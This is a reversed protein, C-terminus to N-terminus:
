VWYAVRKRYRSYFLVAVVALVATLILCFAWSFLSPPNGLLPDRVIEIFHYFPNADVVASRNPLLDPNWLIPTMFFGIQLLSAIIPPVDRFRACLPGLILSSFFAAVLILAFGLIAYLMTAGPWIGFIIIVIVYVAMNHALEISRTWLVQFIYVSLPMELQRITGAAQSFVVCASTLTTSILAWAIYGVTLYPLYTQIDSGFIQSYLVGLVGVMVGLSITLWFPGIISRTYQRQIERWGLNLWLESKRLGDRVDLFTAKLQGSFAPNSTITSSTTM